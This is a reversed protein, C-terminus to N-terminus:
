ERVLANEDHCLFCARAVDKGTVDSVALTESQRLGIERGSGRIDSHPCPLVVDEWLIRTEGHGSCLSGDALVENGSM